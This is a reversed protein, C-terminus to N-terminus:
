NTKDYPANSWIRLNAGRYFTVMTTGQNDHNCTLKVGTHAGKIVLDGLPINIDYAGSGAQSVILTYYKGVVDNIVKITHTGSIVVRQNISKSCDYTITSGDNIAIQYDIVTAKKASDVWKSLKSISDKLQAQTAYTALQAQTVYNGLQAQTVYNALQTITAYTAQVGYITAFIANSEAKTYADVNGNSGKTAVLSDVYSRLAFGPVDTIRSYPLYGGIPFYLADTRPKQWYLNASGEPVDNTTIIVVKSKGNVSQVYTWTGAAIRAMISDSRKKSITSDLQSKAEFSVVVALIMLVYKM